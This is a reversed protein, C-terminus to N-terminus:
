SGRLSVLGLQSEYRPPRTPAITDLKVSCIAPAMPGLTALSPEGPFWPGNTLEGVGLKKACRTHM